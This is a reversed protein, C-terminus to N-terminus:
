GAACSSGTGVVARSKAAANRAEWGISGHCRGLAVRVTATWVGTEAGIAALSWGRRELERVRAVVEDTLKFLGARGRHGAVLGAV